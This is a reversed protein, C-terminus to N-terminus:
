FHDYFAIEFERGIHQVPAYNTTLDTFLLMMSLNEGYGIRVGADLYVGGSGFRGDDTNDNFAGDLDVLLSFGSVIEWEAAAFADLDTDGDDRELSYNAGGHLSLQGLVLAWNRSLVAYLGLSKREYRELDEDFIGRGQSNFGIAFAPGRGEPVLRVRLQLGPRDNVSINAREFVRQMGYSVGLHLVNKLGVRFGLLISSEPGIRGQIHYEGHTLLGATPSGSVYIPQDIGAIAVGPFVACCMSALIIRNRVSM